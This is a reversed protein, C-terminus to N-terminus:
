FNMKCLVLFLWIVVYRSLVLSAKAVIGRKKRKSVYSSRMSCANKNNRRKNNREANHWGLAEM